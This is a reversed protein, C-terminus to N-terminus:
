GTGIFGWISLLCLSILYLFFFVFFVFFFWFRLCRRVRLCLAFIFEEACLRFHLFLLRLGIWFSLTFGFSISLCFFRLNLGFFLRSLFAWTFRGSIFLRQCFLELLLQLFRSVCLGLFLWQRWDILFLLIIDGLFRVLGFRRSFFSTFLFFVCSLLM